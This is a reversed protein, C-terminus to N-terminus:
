DPELISLAYNPNTKSRPLRGKKRIGQYGQDVQCGPDGKALLAKAVVGMLVLDEDREQDLDARLMKQVKKEVAVAM